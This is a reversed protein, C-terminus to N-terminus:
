KLYKMFYGFIYCYNKSWQEFRIIFELFNRFYSEIFNYVFIYIVLCKEKIFSM